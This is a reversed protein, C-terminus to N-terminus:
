PNQQTPPVSYLSVPPHRYRLKRWIPQPIRGDLGLAEIARAAYPVDPEFRAIERWGPKPSYASLQEAKIWPNPKEVSLPNGFYFMGPKPLGAVVQDQAKEWRLPVTARLRTAPDTIIVTGRYREALAALTRAAFAGDKNEVYTGLLNTGLILGGLMVPWFRPVRKWEIQALAMGTLICAAACTIM